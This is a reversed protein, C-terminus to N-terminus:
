GAIWRCRMRPVIVPGSPRFEQVYWADCTRVANAPLRERYVRLRTAPRPRRRAQSSIEAALIREIKPASQRQGDRAQAPAAPIAAVSAAMAALLLIRQTARM